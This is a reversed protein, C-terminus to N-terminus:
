SHRALMAHYPLRPHIQAGHAAQREEGDRMLQGEIGSTVGDIGEIEERYDVEIEGQERKSRSPADARGPRSPQPM